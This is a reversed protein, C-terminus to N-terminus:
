THGQLRNCIDSVYSATAGLGDSLDSKNLSGSNYLRCAEYIAEATDSNNNQELNAKFHRTGAMVMSTIQDKVPNVVSITLSLEMHAGVQSLDHQGPFGPSGRCQMLGADSEGGQDNTSQVGVNGTSEQMIIALIVREEVGIKAAENIANFIRGVDEGSDGTQLMEPKNINFLTIFDKWTEKGPFSSAPGSFFPGAVM